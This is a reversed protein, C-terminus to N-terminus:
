RGRRLTAEGLKLTKGAGKVQGTVEFTLVDSNQHGRFDFRPVDSAGSAIAFFIEDGRMGGDLLKCATGEIMLTGSLESGNGSLSLRVARHMEGSAGVMRLEGEWIGTPNAALLRLSLFSMVVLLYGRNMSFTERTKDNLQLRKKISSEM